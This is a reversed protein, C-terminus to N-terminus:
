FCEVPLCLRRGFLQYCCCSESTNVSASLDQYLLGEAQVAFSGPSASRRDQGVDGVGSRGLGAGADGRGGPAAGGGEWGQGADRGRERRPGARM